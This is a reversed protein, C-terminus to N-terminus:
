CAPHPECVLCALVALGEEEDRRQYHGCYIFSEVQFRLWGGGQNIELDTGPTNM